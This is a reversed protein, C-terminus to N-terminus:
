APFLPFEMLYFLSQYKQKVWLFIDFVGSAKFLGFLFDIFKGMSAVIFISFLQYGYSNSRFQLFILIM